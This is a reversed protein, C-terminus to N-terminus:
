FVIKGALGVFHFQVAPTRIDVKSSSASSAKVGSSLKQQSFRGLIMSATSWSENTHCSRSQIGWFASFQKSMYDTRKKNQETCILPKNRFIDSRCFVCGKCLDALRRWFLTLGKVLAQGKKAWSSFPCIVYYSLCILVDIFFWNRLGGLSGGESWTNLQQRRLPSLTLSTRCRKQVM